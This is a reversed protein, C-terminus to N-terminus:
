NIYLKQIVADYKSIEEEWIFVNHKFSPVSNITLCDNSISYLLKAAIYILYVFTWIMMIQFFSRNLNSYCNIRYIIDENLNIIYFVWSYQLNSKCDRSFVYIIGHSSYVFPSYNIFSVPIFQIPLHEM